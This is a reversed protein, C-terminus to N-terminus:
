GKELLPNDHKDLWMRALRSDSKEAYHQLITKAEELAARLKKNDEDADDVRKVLASVTPRLTGDPAITEDVFWADQLRQIEARLEALEKQAEAVLAHYEPEEILNPETSADMALLEDLTSNM